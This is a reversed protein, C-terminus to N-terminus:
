AKSSYLKVIFSIEVEEVARSVNEDKKKVINAKDRAGSDRAVKRKKDKSKKQIYILFPSLILVIWQFLGLQVTFQGTGGYVKACGDAVLPDFNTTWVLRCRAGKM